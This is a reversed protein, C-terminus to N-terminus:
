TKPALQAGLSLAAPDHALPEGTASGPWNSGKVRSWFLPRIPETSPHSTGEGDPPVGFNTGPFSPVSMFIEERLAIALTNAPM